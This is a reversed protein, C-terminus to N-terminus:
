FQCRKFTGYSMILQVTNQDATNQTFEAATIEFDTDTSTDIMFIASAFEAENLRFNDNYSILM